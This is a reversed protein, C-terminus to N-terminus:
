REALRLPEHGDEQPHGDLEAGPLDVHHPRVRLILDEEGVVSREALRGDVDSVREGDGAVVARLVHEALRDARAVELNEPDLRLAASEELVGLVTRAAADTRDDDAVRVPAVAEPGRLLGYAAREIHEALSVRDNANGRRPEGAHGAVRPDPREEGCHASEAGQLADAGVLELDDSPERM